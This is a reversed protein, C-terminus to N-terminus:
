ERRQQKSWTTTLGWQTGQRLDGSFDLTTERDARPRKREYSMHGRRSDTILQKRCMCALWGCICANCLIPGRRHLSPYLIWGEKEISENRNSRYARNIWWQSAINTLMNSLLSYTTIQRIITQSSM